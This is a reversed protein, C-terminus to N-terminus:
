RWRRGSRSTHMHPWHGPHMVCRERTKPDYRGCIKVALLAHGLCYLAAAGLLVLLIM